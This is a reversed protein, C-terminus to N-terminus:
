NVIIEQILLKECAIQSLTVSTREDYSIERTGDFAEISNVTLITGLKLNKSNLFKLFNDSSHIVGSLKITEGIKCESLKKQDPFEMEGDSDPIPTYMEAFTTRGWKQHYFRIESLVYRFIKNTSHNM